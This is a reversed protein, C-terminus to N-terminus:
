FNFDHTLQLNSDDNFLQAALFACMKYKSHLFWEKCSIESYSKHTYLIILFIIYDVCLHLLKHGVYQTYHYWKSFTKNLCM